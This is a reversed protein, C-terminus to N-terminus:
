LGYYKLWEMIQKEQILGVYNWVLKGKKYLLLMPLADAEFADRILPNTETDIVMLKVENINKKVLADLIPRQKKCVACWEAKLYVLVLKDKSLVRQNFDVVTLAVFSTDQERDEQSSLATTLLFFVFLLKIKM